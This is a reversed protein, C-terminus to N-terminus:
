QCFLPGGSSAYGNMKAAFNGGDNDPNSIGEAGAGFAVGITHSAALENMHGFLYDVRNDRAASNALSMNGVPVQWWLLPRGVTEALAGAWTFAQHFNPLMANTDDFWKGNSGADVDNMDSVIFDGQGAGCSVMLLGLKHAEGAVDFSANNNQLVDYGTSWGSAHLGVKANPAYKRVMSIMCLGLGSFTNPFCSCDDPNASAVAAPLGTCDVNNQVARMTVYGWFDPEVHLLATENGIKQLLFRWDGLYKAMFAADNARDVEPGNEGSSQGRIMYYTFMPIEGRQKASAIWNTPLGGGPDKNPDQEYCAWWSYDPCPVSPDGINGSSLYTYRINYPAADAADNSGSMGALVHSKGLSTMLSDGICSSAPGATATIAQCGPTTDGGGGGGGGGPQASKSGGCALVAASIALIIAKRM